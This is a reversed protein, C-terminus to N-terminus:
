FGLRVTLGSPNKFLQFVSIKVLKPGSELFFMDRKM